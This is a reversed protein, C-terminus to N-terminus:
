VWTDKMGNEKVHDGITSLFCMSTHLGGLRIIVRDRYEPVSWKLEMARCFLAQDVIFIGYNNTLQNAVHIGHRFKTNLTSYDDALRQKKVEKDSLLSQNMATWNSKKSVAREASTKKSRSLLFAMDIARHANEYSTDVKFTDLTVHAISQTPPDKLIPVQVEEVAGLIDPVQLSSKSFIMVNEDVNPLGSRGKKICQMSLVMIDLTALQQPNKRCM